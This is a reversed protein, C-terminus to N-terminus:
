QFVNNIIIIIIIITWSCNPKLDFNDVSTAEQLRIESIKFIFM